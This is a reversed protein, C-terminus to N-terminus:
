QQKYHYSAGTGSGSGSMSSAASGASVPEAGSLAQLLGRLSLSADCLLMLDAQEQCPVGVQVSMVVKECTMGM